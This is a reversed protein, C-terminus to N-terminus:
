HGIPRRSKGVTNQLSHSIVGSTGGLVRGGETNRKVTWSGQQARWGTLSLGDFLNKGVGVPVLPRASKNSRAGSPWFRWIGAAAAAAVVVVGILLALVPRSRRLRRPSSAKASPHWGSPEAAHAVVVSLMLFSVAFLRRMM